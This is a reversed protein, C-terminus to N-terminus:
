LKTNSPATSPKIIPWWAYALLAVGVVILAIGVVPVALAAVGSSILYLGIATALIVRAWSKIKDGAVGTIEGVKDAVPQFSLLLALFMIVALAISIKKRNM